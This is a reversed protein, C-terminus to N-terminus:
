LSVVKDNFQIEGENAIYANDNGAAAVLIVGDAACDDIYGARDPQWHVVRWNFGIGSEWYFSDINWGHTFQNDSNYTVGDLVIKKSLMGTLARCGGRQAGVVILM